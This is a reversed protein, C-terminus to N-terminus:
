ALLTRSFFMLRVQPGFLLMTTATAELLGVHVEPFLLPHIVEKQVVYKAATHGAITRLTTTEDPTIFTTKIPTKHEKEDLSDWLTMLEKEREASLANPLPVPATTSSTTAANVAVSVDVLADPDVGDPLTYAPVAAKAPVSVGAGGEFSASAGGGEFSASAGSSSFSASAGGGVFSASAGGGLVLGEFPDRKWFAQM